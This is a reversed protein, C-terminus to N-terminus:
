DKFIQEFIKESNENMEELLKKARNGFSSNHFVYIFKYAEESHHLGKEGSLSTLLFKLEGKANEKLSSFNVELVDNDTMNVIYHTLSQTEEKNLNFNVVSDDFLFSLMEKGKEDNGDIKAKALISKRKLKKFASKFM